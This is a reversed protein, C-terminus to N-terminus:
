GSAVPACCDPACCAPATRAPATRAPPTCVASRGVSLGPAPGPVPGPAFPGPPLPGPPRPAPLVPVGHHFDGSPLRAPTMAPAIKATALRAYRASVAIDAPSTGRPTTTAP